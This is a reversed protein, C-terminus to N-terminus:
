NEASVALNKEGVRAIPGVLLAYWIRAIAFGTVAHAAFCPGQNAIPTEVLLSAVERHCRYRYASKAASPPRPHGGSVLSKQGPPLGRM